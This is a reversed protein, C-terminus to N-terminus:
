RGEGGVAAASDSDAGAGGEVGKVHIQALPAGQVVVVMRDRVLELVAIFNVVLGAKGEGTVLLEEFRVFRKGGILQLIRTMKERVSLRERSVTWHKFQGYRGLATRLATRLDALSATPLVKGEGEEVGIGVLYIERELRPLEDLRRAAQQFREYEQLRRVLATRPDEEAEEGEVAPKPLLMRAKIEALMAAMVLYEGALDLRLERMLDVYEMYQRTIQSVPIDLIDLNQKRILYLLLDLPGQFTELFVELAEPPIYLDQPLKELKEGYVLVAGRRAVGEGVEGVEGEGMAMDSKGM